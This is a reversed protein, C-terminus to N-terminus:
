WSVEGNDQGLYYVTAKKKDSWIWSDISVTKGGMDETHTFVLTPKGRETLAKAQDPGANKEADQIEVKSGNAISKAIILAIAGTKQDGDLFLAHAYSKWMGADKFDIILYERILEISEDVKGANMSAQIENYLASQYFEANTAAPVLKRAEEFDDAAQSFIAASQTSDKTATGRTMRALGRDFYLNANQPTGAISATLLSDARGALKIAEEPPTAPDEAKKLLHQAEDAGLRKKIEILASDGPAIGLGSDILAQAEAMKGQNVLVVVGQRYAKIEKADLARALEFELAAAENKEESALKTGANYRNVWFHMRNEKVFKVNQKSPDVKLSADFESGALKYMTVVSDVDTKNSAVDGSAEVVTLKEQGLQALAIAYRARYEAKDPCTKVAVGFRDVAKPYLKQSFYLKGSRFENACNVEQANVTPVGFVAAGVLVLGYSLLNSGFRM